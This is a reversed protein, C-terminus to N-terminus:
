YDDTHGGQRVERISWDVADRLQQLEPDNSQILWIKRELEELIPFAQFDPAKGLAWVVEIQVRRNVGPRNLVQLLLATSRTDGTIAGVRGLGHVAAGQIEPSQSTKLLDTLYPRSQEGFEGLARAAVAALSQKQRADVLVKFAPEARIEGLLFLIMKKRALSSAPSRFTQILRHIQGWEASLLLPFEFTNLYRGTLSPPRGTPNQCYLQRATRVGYSYIVRDVNRWPILSGKVRYNFLCPPGNFQDSDTPGLRRTRDLPSTKKKAETEGCTVQVVVDHPFEKRTEVGYGLEEIKKRVIEEVNTLLDLTQPSVM